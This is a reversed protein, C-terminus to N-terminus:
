RVEWANICAQTCKESKCYLEGNRQFINYGEYLQEGCNYCNNYGEDNLIEKLKLYIIPNKCDDWVECNKKVCSSTKDPCPVNVNEHKACAFIWKGRILTKRWLRPNYERYVFHTYHKEVYEFNKSSSHLWEMNILWIFGGPRNFAHLYGNLQAENKYSIDKIWQQLPVNTNKIEIIYNPTAIDAHYRFFYDKWLEKEYDNNFFESLEVMKYLEKESDNIPEYGMQENIIPIYIDRVSKMQYLKHQTKGMLFYMNPPPRIWYMKKLITQRLPDWIDSGLKKPGDDINDELVTNLAGFPNFLIDKM